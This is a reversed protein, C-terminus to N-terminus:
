AAASGPSPRPDGQRRGYGTPRHVFGESGGHQEGTREDRRDGLRDHEVSGEVVPIRRFELALEVHLVRAAVAGPGEVNELQRSSELALRQEQVKAQRRGQVQLAPRLLVPREDQRDPEAVPALEADVEAPTLREEVALGQAPRGQPELRQRGVRAVSLLKAQVQAADAPRPRVLQRDAHAAAVRHLRDHQVRLRRRRSRCGRRRLPWEQGIGRRGRARKTVCVHVHQPVAEGVGLSSGLQRPQDRRRVRVHHRELLRDGLRVLVLGVGGGGRRAGGGHELLADAATPVRNGIAAAAGHDGAVRQPGDREPLFHAARGRDDVQGAVRGIRDDDADM